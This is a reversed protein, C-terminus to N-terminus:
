EVNCTLQCIHRDDFFKRGALAEIALAQQPNLNYGEDGRQPNLWGMIDSLDADCGEPLNIELELLESERDFVEVIYKM